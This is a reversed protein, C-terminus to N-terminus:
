IEIVSNLRKQREAARNNTDFGDIVASRTKEATQESIEKAMFIIQDDTFNATVVISGGSEGSLLPGFQPTFDLTGGGAFKKGGYAYNFDSLNKIQKSANRNLIVFIEDKEVEVHTGDDFYGKTGGQSHRRGGFMGSKKLKAIGGSAFTQSNIVAIQAATAIAAIGALVLNPLAKVVALAGQITAETLASRKRKRAADKEIAEKRKQFEVEIKALAEANGAAALKRNEYEENLSDLQKQKQQDIRNREIQFVSGALNGAADLLQQQLEKRKNKEQEIRALKQDHLKQDSSNIAQAADAEAKIREESASRVANNFEQEAATRQQIAKLRLLDVAANVDGGQSQARENAAQIELQTESEIAQLRVNLAAKAAEIRANELNQYIVKIKEARETELALSGINFSEQAALYEKKFREQSITGSQLQETLAKKRQNLITELETQRQAFGTNAIEVEARALEQANQQALNTVEVSLRALENLQKDTAKQRNQELKQQQLDYAANISATQESILALQQKDAETLIGNQSKVKETLEQRSEALKQLADARRNEIEVSERDFENLITQADLDKIAKQLVQIQSLQSKLEDERKKAKSEADKDITSNLDKNIKIIKKATQEQSSVQRDDREEEARARADENRKDEFGSNFATRLRQGQTFAIGIPNGKKLVEGFDDLAGSFDGEKIKSFGRSFAEFSETIIKFVEFAVAGLGAISARFTESRQYASQFGIALASVATIVLGIPNARMAANLLNQAATAAATSIAQLKTVAALRLNNVSALILQSNLLVLGAALAGFETKNESIFRPLEKLGSFLAIVFQLTKSLLSILFTLVPSLNEFADVAANIGDKQLNEFATALNGANTEAQKYAENTGTIQTVFNRYKDTSQTLIQAASLNELGFIKVLAGTNGAVKSLEQLRTELPLSSDRLVNIDVNAQKLQDLATRPLIDAASLKALINRLQTGAEAGKLQQEALTQILAISESTSVNAVAATTGFEKLAKATDPIESAGAKAGAALENSVRAADEAGLSYQGLAVVIADVSDKLDLGSAQSLVIAEQTVQALADASKLLEPQAGGVIKFAEVIDAATNKIEFDGIKITTLEEAKQKFKELAQGTVGTLASLNDLRKEYLAFEQVGKTIASTVLEVARGIGGLILGSTVIDSIALLAKQYNGVSGTFNGISEQISNIQGKIANANKILSQGALSTRDQESLKSIQENLKAYELRLGALSDKPVQLAKFERNLARQKETLELTQAKAKGLNAALDAFNEATEDIGKLEKKLSKILEKQRELEKSVNIDEVLLEFIVKM